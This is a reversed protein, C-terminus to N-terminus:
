LKDQRSILTKVVHDLIYRTWPPRNEGGFAADTVLRVRARTSEADSAEQSARIHESIFKVLNRVEEVSDLESAILVPYIADSAFEPPTMDSTLYRTIADRVDANCGFDNEVHHQALRRLSTLLGPQVLTEADDGFLRTHHIRYYEDAFRVDRYRGLWDGQEQLEVVSAYAPLVYMKDMTLCEMVVARVVPAMTDEGASLLSLSRVLERQKGASSFGRMAEGLEAPGPGVSQISDSCLDLPVTEDLSLSRSGHPDALYDLRATKRKVFLKQSTLSSAAAKSLAATAATRDTMTSSDISAPWYRDTATQILGSLPRNPLLLPTFARGDNDGQKSTVGAIQIPLSVLQDTEVDTTILLRPEIALYWLHRFVQLHARNDGSWRPFPPLFSILLAAVGLDSTGLTFRGGGLFLLGLAMHTAMHSGYCVDGDVDGHARRLHRLFDVDGSGALVMALSMRAQDLAAQVAAKRIKSFFSVTQVRVQKDLTHLQQWLCDCAQADKSGAYKLGIAFCAGAQMNIQALQAAESISKGMEIRKQLWSPLVSHLWENTPEILDWLIISRALVHVFLVDPRLTDLDRPMQPPAMVDAIMKCNSRLFILGFALAAPASTLNIELDAWSGTDSRLDGPLSFGTKIDSSGKVLHVLRSIIRKDPLSKMGNGRGKGMYVLGLALGASLSYAERHQPQMNPTPSEQAGIQDLMRKATWRHNSGLFVLGMALLGATQTITSLNLPASGSPLFATLQMGILHRATPDATAVTSVAMGLLFGITLLNNRMKLYRFVHVPTMTPLQRMLGLGFLFGAHRATVQEGLHAFIWKSDVTVNDALNLELVSAVGNHFEPWDLGAPDAKNDPEITMGRPRVKVALCISPIRWKHTPLFQRSMMFLMARGPSLAKTREGIAAVAANHQEMITAETQNEGEAVYVSNVTDTKLMALVDRLRFDRSFLQACIADLPGDKPLTRILQEPIKRANATSLSGRHRCTNLAIEERQVMHYFEASKESPPKIQCHRIAQYLPVSIGFPLKRLKELDLGLKIMSEVIATAVDQRDITAQRFIAYTRLIADLVPFTSAANAVQVSTRGTRIWSDVSDVQEGGAWALDLLVHYFNAPPGTTSRVTNGLPVITPVFEAEIRTPVLRTRLADVWGSAQHRQAVAVAVHVVRRVGEESHTNDLRMEEALLYLTLLICQAEEQQLADKIPTASEVGKQEFDISDLKSLGHLLPDNGFLRHAILGGATEDDARLPSLSSTLVQVLSTWDKNIAAQGHPPRPSAGTLFRTQIWRSKIKAALQHPLTQSIVRLVRATITCTSRFDLQVDISEDSEASILQVSSVGGKVAAQLDVSSATTALQELGQTVPGFTSLDLAPRSLSPPGLHLQIVGNQSITLVETSDSGMVQLPLLASCSIVASAQLKSPTKCFPLNRYSDRSELRQFGLRRCFTQELHPVSLFLYTADPDVRDFSASSVRLGALDSAVSAGPLKIEDLLCVCAFSRAFGDMDAIQALDVDDDDPAIGAEVDIADARIGDITGTPIASSFRTPDVSTDLRSLNMSPRSKAASISARNSNRPGGYPTRPAAQSSRRLRAATAPNTSIRMSTGAAGLDDMIAEHPYAQSQFRLGDATHSINALTRDRAQTAQEDKRSSSRRESAGSHMASIRRSRGSPDRGMAASAIGSTRRELDIRASRRLTSPFGRGLTTSSPAGPTDSLTRAHKTAGHRDDVQSDIATLSQPGAINTVGHDGVATMGLSSHVPHTSLLAPTAELADPRATFAYIRIASNQVSKTVIFSPYRPDNRSSVFAVVEDMEGFPLVPGHTMPKPDTAPSASYSLQPYRDVPVLDDYCRSLYFVMPLIRAPDQHIQSTSALDYEDLINSLNYVSDSSNSLDPFPFGANSSTQPLSSATVPQRLRSAIREDELEIQRQILVGVPAPFAKSFRFPLDMDVQEGTGPFHIHVAQEFFVCLARVLSDAHQNIRAKGPAVLITDPSSVQFLTWFSQLVPSSFSFTRMLTNGRTWTLLRDKWELEDRSSAPNQTGDSHQNEATSVDSRPAYSVSCGQTTATSRARIKQLRALLESPEGMSM